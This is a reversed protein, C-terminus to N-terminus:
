IRAADGYVVESSLENEVAALPLAMQYHGTSDTRTSGMSVGKNLGVQDLLAQWGGSRDNIM